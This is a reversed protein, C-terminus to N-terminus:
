FWTYPFPQQEARFMADALALTRDDGVAVRGARALVSPAVGGLALAGLMSCDMVLDAERDTRECSVGDGDNRLRFRGETEDLHLFPDAIEVVLDGVAGYTRATLLRASDIPRLWLADRVSETRFQRQDDLLWPLLSDLAVNAARIGVTLDLDLLYQWLAVEAAPGSAVLDRVGVIQNSIGHSWEGEFAYLAFGEVVGAAEYVVTFQRRPDVWDSPAWEDPWWPDPRSVAGVRSRRVRDFCRNAIVAADDAEVLRCTGTETRNHLAAPTSDVAIGGSRAAIGYGFRGYIGGESATLISVPEGRDRSDELLRTMVQRLLGRRRHTPRTSIWSVGGADVIAGGPLTLELSYNRGTAVVDDADFAAITRELEHATWHAHEAVLPMRDGFSYAPVLAFADLETETISRLLPDM